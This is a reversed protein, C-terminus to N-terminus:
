EKEKTEIEEYTVRVRAGETLQRVAEWAASYAELEEPRDVVIETAVSNVQGTFSGLEVRKMTLVKAEAHLVAEPLSKGRPADIANLLLELIKLWDADSEESCKECFYAPNANGCGACLKDKDDSM